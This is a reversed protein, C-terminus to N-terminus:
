RMCSRKGNIASRAEAFIASVEPRSVDTILKRGYEPHLIFLSVCHVDGWLVSCVQCKMGYQADKEREGGEEEMKGVPASARPLPDVAVQSDSSLPGVTVQSDSSLPGVAVQSDSSPPDVTVQSDSSLPGVAVQSDSSLPGVAVQSDSSPPDVTVQSDSSLPGVAVQSDSSLPGVAVQSDSSPPDVTVQSDSSLLSDTSTTLNSDRLSARSHGSGLKKARRARFKPRGGGSVTASRSRSFPSELLALHQEQNTVHDAQQTVHDAKQTVHDAQQTM